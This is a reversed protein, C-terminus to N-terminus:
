MDRCKRRCTLQGGFDCKLMWKSRKPSFASHGRNWSFHKVKELLHHWFGCASPLDKVSVLFLERLLFNPLKAYASTTVATVNTVAATIKNHVKALPIGKLASGQKVTAFPSHSSSAFTEAIADSAATAAKRPHGRGRALSQPPSQFESNWKTEGSPMAACIDVRVCKEGGIAAKEIATQDVGSYESVQAVTGYQRGSDLESRFVSLLSQAESLLRDAACM